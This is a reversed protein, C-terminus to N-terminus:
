VGKSAEEDPHIMTTENPKFSIECLQMINSVFSKIEHSYFLESTIQVKNGVMHDIAITYHKNFM